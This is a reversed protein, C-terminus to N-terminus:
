YRTFHCVDLCIIVVEMELSLFWLPIHANCAQAQRLSAVLGVQPTPIDKLAYTSDELLSSLGLSLSSCSSSVLGLPYFLGLSKDLYIGWFIVKPWIASCMNEILWSNKVLFTHGTIIVFFCFCIPTIQVVPDLCNSVPSLVIEKLPQLWYRTWLVLGTM